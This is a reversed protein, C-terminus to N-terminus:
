NSKWLHALTVIGMVCFAGAVIFYLVREYRRPEYQYKARGTLRDRATFKPAFVSHWMGYMGTIVVLLTLAASLGM